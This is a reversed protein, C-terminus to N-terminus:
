SPTASKKTRVDTGVRIEDTGRAAVEDGPRLEGFVEVFPGSTLGTKVDVWETKGGRVRVVFTRGTTTAVSASPVLM